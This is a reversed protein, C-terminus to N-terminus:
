YYIITRDRTIITTHSSRCAPAPAHNKLHYQNSKWPMKECVYQLLTINNGGAVVSIERKYYTSLIVFIVMCITSTVISDITGQLNVVCVRPLAYRCLIWWYFAPQIWLCVSYWTHAKVKCFENWVLGDRTPVFQVTTTPTNGFNPQKYRSSATNKYQSTTVIYVARGTLLKCAVDLILPTSYRMNRRLCGDTTWAKLLQLHLHIIFSSPHLVVLTSLPPGRLFRLSICWLWCNNTRYAMNTEGAPRRRFVASHTATELPLCHIELLYGYM